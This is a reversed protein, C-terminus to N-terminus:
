KLCSQTYTSTAHFGTEPATKVIDEGNQLFRVWEKTVLARQNQGYVKTM